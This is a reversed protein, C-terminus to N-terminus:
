NSQNITKIEESVKGTKEFGKKLIDLKQKLEELYKDTHSDQQTFEFPKALICNDPQSKYIDPNDDIIFTNNQTINPLKFVDWLTSLSKDSKKVNKSVSGHYNFLIYEITREPHNEMIINKVIFVAYDKTAATWISVTFNKFLYDLFSQLEPRHFVEYIDPLTSKQFKSLKDDPYEKVSKLPEASILTQDLDLFVHIPKSM